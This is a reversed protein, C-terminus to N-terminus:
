AGIEQITLNTWFMGLAGTSIDHTANISLTGAYSLHLFKFQIQSADTIEQVNLLTSGSTSSIGDAGSVMTGGDYGSHGLTAWTVGADISYQIDLYGGGWGSENNRAPVRWHICIKSGPTKIRNTWIKGAGWSTGYSRLTEDYEYWVNVSRGANKLNGNTDLIKSGESYTYNESLIEDSLSRLGQNDRYGDQAVSIDNGNATITENNNTLRM